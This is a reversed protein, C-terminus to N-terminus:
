YIGGSGMYICFQDEPRLLLTVQYVLWLIPLLYKMPACEFSTLPILAELNLWHLFDCLAQQCM